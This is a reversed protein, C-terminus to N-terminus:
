NYLGIKWKGRVPTGDAFQVGREVPFVSSERSISPQVGTGLIPPPVWQQPAKDKGANNGYSIQNDPQSSGELITAPSAKDALGRNEALVQRMTDGLGKVASEFTASPPVAWHQSSRDVLDRNGDLVQQMTRAMEKLEPPASYQLTREVLVKNVDMIQRMRDGIEKVASEFMKEM